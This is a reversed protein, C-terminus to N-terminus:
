YETMFETMVRPSGAVEGDTWNRGDVLENRHSPCGSCASKRPLAPCFRGPCAGGPGCRSAPRDPTGKAPSSRRWAVSGERHPPLHLFRGLLLTMSRSRNKQTHLGRQQEAHVLPVVRAHPHVKHRLVRTADDGPQRHGGTAKVEEAPELSNRTRPMRLQQELDLLKLLRRPRKEAGNKTNIGENKPAQVHMNRGRGITRAWPTPSSFM